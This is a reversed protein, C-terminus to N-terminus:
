GAPCIRICRTAVQWGAPGEVSICQKTKTISTLMLSPNTQFLLQYKSETGTQASIEHICMCIGVAPSGFLLKIKKKDPSSKFFRVKFSIVVLYFGALTNLDLTKGRRIVGQYNM